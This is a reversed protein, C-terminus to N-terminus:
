CRNDIGSHWPLTAPPEFGDPWVTEVSHYVDAFRAGPLDQGAINRAPQIKATGLNAGILDTGRLEADFLATASLDSLRLDAYSLNAGDAVAQSLDVSSLDARQLNAESLIAFHLTAVGFEACSLDTGIAGVFSLNSRSFDAGSFNGDLSYNILCVDSLDIVNDRNRSDIDNALDRRGIVSVAAQLDPRPEPLRGTPTITPRGIGDLEVRPTKCGADDVPANERVFAALTDVVVGQDLASDRAIRELSYIAGIRVAVHEDGLAATANAFRETVQGHELLKVQDQTAELTDSNQLVGIVAVIALAITSITPVPKAFAAGVSSAFGAVASRPRNGNNAGSDDGTQNPDSTGGTASSM